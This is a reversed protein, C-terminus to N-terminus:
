IQDLDGLEDGEMLRIRPSRDWQRLSSFDSCAYAFKYSVRTPNAIEGREWMQRIFAQPAIDSQTHRLHCAYMWDWISLVCDKQEPFSRIYTASSLLNFRLGLSEGNFDAPCNGFLDTYFAFIRTRYLIFQRLARAVSGSYIPTDVWFDNREAGDIWPKRKVACRIFCRISKDFEWLAKAIRNLELMPPQDPKLTDPLGRNDLPRPILPPDNFPWQFNHGETKFYMTAEKIGHWNRYRTGVLFGGGFALNHLELGDIEWIKRSFNFIPFLAYGQGIFTDRIYPNQEEFIIGVTALGSHKVCSPLSSGWITLHHLTIDRCNM